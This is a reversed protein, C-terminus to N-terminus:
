TCRGNKENAKEYGNSYSFDILSKRQKVKEDESFDYGKLISFFAIQKYATDSFM